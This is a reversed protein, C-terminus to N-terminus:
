VSWPFSLSWRRGGLGGRWWRPSPLAVNAEPGGPAYETQREKVGRGRQVRARGPRTKLADERSKNFRGPSWASVSCSARIFRDCAPSRHTGLGPQKRDAVPPSASFRRPRAPPTNERCSPAKEKVPQKSGLTSALRHLIMSYCDNWRSM